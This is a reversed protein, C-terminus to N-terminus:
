TQYCTALEKFKTYAMEIALDIRNELRDPSMENKYAPLPLQSNLRVQTILSANSLSLELKNYKRFRNGLAL